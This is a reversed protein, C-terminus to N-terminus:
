PQVVPHIPTSTSPTFVDNGNYTATITDTPSPLPGTYAAGATANPKSLRFSPYYNLGPYFLDVVGDNNLDGTLLPAPYSSVSQSEVSFTGDGHGLFIAGHGNSSTEVIM